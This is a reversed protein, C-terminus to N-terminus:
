RNEPVWEKGNSRFVQGTEEDRARKGAYSSADPLNSFTKQQPNVFENRKDQIYDKNQTRYIQNAKSVSINGPGGAREIIDLVGEAQHRNLDNIIKLDRLVRRRGEATNLLSPLKKLYTQVDFNTVRAGFTAKAGGIEDTVLKVFEQAEPSLLAAATPRLEGDKTFMATTVSSPFKDEYDEGSLVNLRDFRMGSQELSDLENQIELIRPEAESEKKLTRKEQAEYFPKLDIGRRKAMIVQEPTINSFRSQGPQRAQQQAQSPLEGQYERLAALSDEPSLGGGMEDGMLAQLASEQAQPNLQQLRLGLEDVASLQQPTQAGFLSELFQKDRRQQVLDSLALGGIGGLASGIAGGISPKPQSQVFFAM